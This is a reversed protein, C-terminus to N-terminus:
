VKVKAAPAKAHAITAAAEKAAGLEGLARRYETPFVKVFKARSEAWHDLIDRARQSGTWRHHDEILKKLIAEDTRAEGDGLKHWIARDMTAEQEHAPLLKDLSVMATNCRKAFQGDEDYVYAVGGSMGAAFNRGTKGLVAVTGGTMYECGHDGTGEVVATAGSLRVAFREGAVGRFFAEGKTAGYLVTNGVIINKTADGRFDISPRVVVRGGSLGKGTYDNADGILYFTIGPALFAGFSQGGTGEMQIFITQDELGEPRRRILEGSLMAGVTRRVNTVEQMFRVKEGKEFAPLCKEILKVDLARDLGHDQHDNHLRAVDAPLEPRHFVRTFDLGKAKWHSIGKKTDLLDARGILEDFKRIGLQAMIQRAEEAVFFFYNVVHEPKGSFKKRLVPDQTAVGVPCTNLHCKRMMICGEVVLPATAFGFEDAGLLAGIVVDRGTKMQGDAQVRVRGRLRNLVLTQQAEALGLEWPTGAHKISSWPSAGTGGDHGAIVIHDAKAKAVGAAITGVGVESVLKVSVDARQNVNKLDHILQALDEISYIDHHPPPSILGVGPVSHRLFGIYDTVKGGPLQGGEGPKAGQAMKIQIQDASVLYETTVGFRGSAVQKIRSRMSDGDQLEYDVEVVKSGVVDSMKTGATIKIGKLENRYRAPDEGGEGTNSKGGIRNMAVALTAHAETSISGLSMAGTAFRKVIEAAPEVEELPIAQTPDFKFEFLGRLTMHRRSQDNILQAYEKYTDFKGSRTSHQLKAIADPTWMHEEGRTRWAYEGGADLMHELVPDDGFAARHLRLAEEAVEFVGIGGVQTPTGRFYKAVFDSKLGIAEFIQAGCYSMYTSIGMKSMIKSLGKGVAKIYNYIAKDASLAAPLEASMAQLTELALYPHVAEAGFGALVAFHHVERATGTEVVLGCTTRLGERVLHHHVASLALLAPIAVRNASLHRDTIILINHGGKIADVTEACLSALQAEVGERGWDLPYTIDLEYPKFKGNTHHEIARLRAMSAFDLVPQTVELRMPPNVANIDLLNPKPGIFSNLSMVIAERIPDIPPNTVQAFLQKFYNYLPKNKDSLVALPSDNGMSGIGEEGNAAMPALLFKVDEQTFGFAQQRDLLSAPFVPAAAEPAPIEDLKVRVNEIWQRYPRANAYQTKLEEDDIIRGQELDILFMKGPQLRWKQVVRSEPIPLVGSESALVVLDDDTVWYRAPRLGNRDLAACVQRGDTFVMAAPGDWPEMMAAHYEYFARRREDMWEHQEWAEPIMMMAAHALPYGSMTLLEIANDFTATDSQHEFSIPYLKKLDDGLVPSKMVGERARMWNFNGKVTNIEGNHAVMRYPHALPWEPFTNTSFRQHVLAIASVVRPDALDRYYKGVQDALLLGKYIVTRCSMSPVYYERSHTLHLAQIASSATKRIVYLKRELADPVIIDPGRGIFIQRIIPEKERVTPSMPMDRDVPVDRWGLLVQGEAKIARALEQECALRSAHEKPLFIMGVGYEGPPPLTVGQQAMEARYFEDPIQILIGAGDGMLKDAGVAGRHDLNELIKLGQQVIHHAKQGKIHAVFGLGCADKENAGNYLGHAALERIETASPGATPLTASVADATTAPSSSQAARPDQAASM